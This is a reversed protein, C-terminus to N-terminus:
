QIGLRHHFVLTSGLYGTITVSLSLLGLFALALKDIRTDEMYKFFLYLWLIFILLSSWTTISAILEHNQLTELVILEHSERGSKIAERQGSIMAGFSSLVGLGLLWMSTTRCIWYPRWLHLAQMFFAAVFLAIPFHVIAPHFPLSM